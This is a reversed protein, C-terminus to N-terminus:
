RIPCFPRTNAEEAFIIVRPGTLLFPEKREQKLDIFQKKLKASFEKDAKKTAKLQEPSSKGQSMLLVQKALALRMKCTTEWKIDSAKEDAIVAKNKPM